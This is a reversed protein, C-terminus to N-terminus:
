RRPSNHERNPLVYAAAIKPHHEHYMGWLLNLEEFNLTHPGHRPLLVNLALHQELSFQALELEVILETRASYISKSNRRSKLPYKWLDNAGHLNELIRPYYNPLFEQFGTSHENRRTKNRHLCTQYPKSIYWFLVGKWFLLITRDQQSAPAM